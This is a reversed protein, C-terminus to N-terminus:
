SFFPNTEKEARITTQEGHGPYIVTDDPLVRLKSKISELIKEESGDIPIDYRGISGKFLTDGSFLIRETECHLCIGGASHGPTHLVKFQLNGV